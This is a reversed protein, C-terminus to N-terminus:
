RRKARHKTDAALWGANFIAVGLGYRAVDEDFKPHERRCDTLLSAEAKAAATAPKPNRKSM